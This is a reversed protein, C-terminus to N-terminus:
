NGSYRFWDFDAYNSSVTGNSSAYMGIYTGTFGGANIRSLTRGDVNSIITKWSGNPEKVKFGYAQGNAFVGLEISKQNCPATALITEKGAHRKTVVLQWVGDKNMKEFRFHFDNNMFLILGATENPSQPSFTMKCSAEFSTDQQRRGIFAPSVLQTIKESLLHIRLSGKNEQL